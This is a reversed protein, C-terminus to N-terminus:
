LLYVAYCGLLCWEEYDGGHFGLGIEGLDMMINYVWRRGPRGLLRKVEPKGVLLGRANREHGNVSCVKYNQADKM